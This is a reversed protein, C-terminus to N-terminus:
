SAEAIKLDVSRTDYVPLYSSVNSSCWSVQHYAPFKFLPVENLDLVFIFRLPIGRRSTMAFV